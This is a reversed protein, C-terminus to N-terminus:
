KSASPEEVDLTALLTPVHVRIRRGQRVVGPILGAKAMSYARAEGVHYILRGVVPADAFVHQRLEALSEPEQM